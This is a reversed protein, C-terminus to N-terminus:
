RLRGVYDIRTARIQGSDIAAQEDAETTGALDAFFYPGHTLFRRDFSQDLEQLLAQGTHLGEDQAWERLYVDWAQGSSACEDRRRHLWGRRNGPGLRQFCWQATPEDFNEWSWEVVVLAGGSTLTKAIRQIVEGPDAVHHLSTCAVMAEVQEPLEAHEFEIRQYDAEDPAEPDIGLAAYGCSRLMPVFGGLPGCGIEVVRAPSAPLHARVAPWLATLWREDPTM